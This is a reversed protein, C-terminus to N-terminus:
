FGVNLILNCIGHIFFSGVSIFFNIVQHPIFIFLSSIFLVGWCVFYMSPKCLRYKGHMFGHLTLLILMGIFSVSAWFFEMYVPSPQILAHYIPMAEKAVCQITIEIVNYFLFLLFLGSALVVIALGPLPPSNYSEKLGIIRNKLQTIIFKDAAKLPSGIMRGLPAVIRTLFMVFPKFILISFISLWFYPCVSFGKPINVDWLPNQFLYSFNKYVWSNTKYWQEVISRKVLM